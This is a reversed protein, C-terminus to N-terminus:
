DLGPYCPHHSQLNHVIAPTHNTASPQLHLTHVQIKGYEAKMVQMSECISWGSGTPCPILDMNVQDTLPGPGQGAAAAAQNIQAQLADHTTEATTAAEQAATVQAQAEALTTHTTRLDEEMQAYDEVLTSM